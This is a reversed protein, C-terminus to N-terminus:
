QHACTRRRPRSCASSGVFIHHFGEGQDKPPESRRWSGLLARAATPNLTEEADAIFPNVAEHDFADDDLDAREEVGLLHLRDLYAAQSEVAPLGPYGRPRWQLFAPVGFDKRWVWEWATPAGAPALLEAGVVCRRPETADFAWWAWPRTGPHELLWAATIEEGHEHWAAAREREVTFFAVARYGDLPKRNHMARMGGPGLELYVHGAPSLPERRTKIRWRRRPM